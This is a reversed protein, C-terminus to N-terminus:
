ASFVLFVFLFLLLLHVCFAAVCVVLVTLRKAGFGADAVFMLFVFFFCLAVYSPVRITLKKSFFM